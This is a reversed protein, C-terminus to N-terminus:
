VIVCQLNKRGKSPFFVWILFELARSPEFSIWVTSIQPFKPRVWDSTYVPNNLSILMCRTGTDILYSTSPWECTPSTERIFSQGSLENFPVSRSEAKFAAFLIDTVQCYAIECFLLVCLEKHCLFSNSSTIQNFIFHSVSVPTTCVIYHKIARTTIM